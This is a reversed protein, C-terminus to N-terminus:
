DKLYFQKFAYMIESFKRPPLSKLPGESKPSPREWPKGTVMVTYCPGNIPRVSHWGDPDIMEYIFLNERDRIPQVYELPMGFLPNKFIQGARVILRCAVPPLEEGNGYGVSMEYTGSLVRM